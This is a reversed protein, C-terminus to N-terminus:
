KVALLVYEQYIPITIIRVNQAFYAITKVYAVIVKSHALIVFM